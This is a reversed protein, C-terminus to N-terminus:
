NKLLRRHTLGGEYFFTLVYMGAPLAATQLRLRQPG